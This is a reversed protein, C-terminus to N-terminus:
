KFGERTKGAAKLAFFPDARSTLGMHAYADINTISNGVAALEDDSLGALETLQSATMPEVNRIWIDLPVHLEWETEVTGSISATFTYEDGTEDYQEESEGGFGVETIELGESSLRSRGVVSLYFLTADLIERQDYVDRAFVEIDLNLSWRGGYTLAAARRSGEVIVPCVDGAQIKRGFALIVGPVAAVNTYEEYIPYPDSLPGEYRYDVSLYRGTGLPANLTLTGTPVGHEDVGVTYQEGEVYTYQNPMEIVRLTSAVPRETLTVTTGVVQAIEGYKSLLADVQFAFLGPRAVDEQIRIYYIGPPSPFVGRNQQIARMDERVWELALGPQHQTKTLHVHTYLLGKYNDAALRNETGGSAKVIIGKQPREKYSYKGQINDVLDVHKPHYSWYNRLVEVMRRTVTASFQYYM